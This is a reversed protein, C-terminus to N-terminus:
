VASNLLRYEEEAEKKFAGSKFQREFTMREEYNRCEVHNLVMNCKWCWLKKRHGKEKGRSVRRPLPISAGCNICYFDHIVVRSM